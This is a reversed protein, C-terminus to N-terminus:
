ARTKRKRENDGNKYLPLDHPRPLDVGVSAYKAYVSIYALRLEEDDMLKARNRKKNIRVRSVIQSQGSGPLTM